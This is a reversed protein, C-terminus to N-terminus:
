KKSKKPNKPKKYPKIKKITWRVYSINVIKILEWGSSGLRFQADRVCEKLAVEVDLVRKATSFSVINKQHIPGKRYNATLEMQKKSRSTPKPNDSEKHGWQEGEGPLVEKYERTIEQITQRRTKLNTGMLQLQIQNVSLGKDIVQKIKKTRFALTHIGKM